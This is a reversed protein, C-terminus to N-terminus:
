SEKILEYSSYIIASLAFTLAKISYFVESQTKWNLATRPKNNLKDKVMKLYKLTKNLRINEFSTKKPINQRILGNVHDYLRKKCSSYPYCFYYDYDLTEPINKNNIIM